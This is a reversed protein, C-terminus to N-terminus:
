VIQLERVRAVLGQNTAVGVRVRLAALRREVTRRSYHLEDAVQAITRGGALLELTALEDRRLDLAEGCENDSSRQQAAAQSRTRSGTTRMAARIHTDVTSPAVGLAAAAQRSTFGRAVLDLVASRTSTATGNSAPAEIRRTTGPAVAPDLLAAWAPDEIANGARTRISATLAASRDPAVAALLTEARAAWYSGGARDLEAIGDELVAIAASDDLCVLTEGYAALARGRELPTLPAGLLRRSLEAATALAGSSRHGAILATRAWHVWWEEGAWSFYDLACRADEVARRPNTDSTCDSRVVLTIADYWRNEVLAASAIADEWSREATGSDGRLAAVCGQVALLMPLEYRNAPDAIRELGAIGEAVAADAAAFEGAHVRVFALYMCAIGIVRDDGRTRASILSEHALLEARGLDGEGYAGLALHALAMGEVPGEGRLLERSRRWWESAAAIHGEGIDELGELFCAYGNGIRDDTPEFAERARQLLARGLPRDISCLAVGGVLGAWPHDDYDLERLRRAHPVLRHILDTEILPLAAEDLLALLAADDVPTGLREVLRGVVQIQQEIEDVAHRWGERSCRALATTHDRGATTTNGVM